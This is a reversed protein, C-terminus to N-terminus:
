CTLFSNIIDTVSLALAQEQAPTLGHDRLNKVQLRFDELETIAKQANKDAKKEKGSTLLKSAKDLPKQLTKTIKPDLNMTAVDSKLTAIAAIQDFVSLRFATFSKNLSVRQPGRGISIDNQGFVARQAFNPTTPLSTDSFMTRDNDAIVFQAFTIDLGTSPSGSPPAASVAYSDESLDNFVTIQSGGTNVVSCPQTGIQVRVSELPGYSAANPTSDTPALDPRFRYIIILADDTGGGIPTADLTSSYIFELPTAATAPATVGFGALGLVLLSAAAARWRVRPLRSPPRHITKSVPTGGNSLPATIDKGRWGSLHLGRANSVDPLLGSEPPSVAGTRKVPWLDIARSDSPLLALRASPHTNPVQRVAM